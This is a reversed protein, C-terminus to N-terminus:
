KITCIFRLIDDWSDEILSTDIKGTPLVVYGLNEYYSPERFGYLKYKTVNDVKPTFPIKM